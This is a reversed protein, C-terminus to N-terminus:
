GLQNDKRHIPVHVRRHTYTSGFPLRIPAPRAWKTIPLWSWAGGHMAEKDRARENNAMGNSVNRINSVSLTHVPVLFLWSSAVWIYSLVWCSVPLKERCFHRTKTNWKAWLM